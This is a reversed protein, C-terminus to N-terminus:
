DNTWGIVGEIMMMRVGGIDIGKGEHFFVKHGAQYEPEPFGPPLPGIEIVIGCEFQCNMDELVERIEARSPQRGGLVDMLNVPRSDGSGLNIALAQIPSKRIKEEFKDIEHDHITQKLVGELASVSMTLWGMTPHITWPQKAETPQDHIDNM